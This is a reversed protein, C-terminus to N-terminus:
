IIIRNYQAQYLKYYHGKKQMLEEHSGIEIIEGDEIVMIRDANRITSLRHAIVFSTRGKLVAETAKQVLIETQTDISSTAEDLILIAPDSLLTRAFSILQRQGVSLRSGRENVETQYGDEMDKIFQHAHATKAARIVDEDSANLNGYKINDMITGSFIFTDQMMVGIQNRLSKITVDQINEEDILIKGEDIEYFRTILNIITSKGAGTAGVLAITEGPKVKFNMNKLIKDDEEYCFTVNDFEVEGDIDSLIMADKKDTIDPEIDLIAFIREAASNTILLQNYFNAMRIIPQWLRWVYQLMATLTGITILGATLYDIGVLYILVISITNIILVFPFVSHSLMVAKMWTKKYTTLLKKLINSNKNERVFAQTIKMGTLSEHVYANTNSNKKQVNRWTIRIKKKLLFIILILIPMIILTVLTLKYSLSFMFILTVVVSFFDTIINILGNELLNQLSNVNNMVRVIIKGAPRSDFYGFSLKQIHEFLKKRISRIVKHGTKSMIIVRYKICVGNIALLAAYALSIMLLGQYDDVAIYSDIAIKILFPGFLNALTSVAMLLLGLIVQINYPKLYKLLRKINHPDISEIKEDEYYLNHAM